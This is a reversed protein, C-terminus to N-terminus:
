VVNVQVPEVTVPTLERVPVTLVSDADFIVCPYEGDPKGDTFLHINHINRDKDLVEIVLTFFPDGGDKGLEWRKITIRRVHHLDLTM